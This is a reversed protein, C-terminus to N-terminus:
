AAPAAGSKSPKGEQDFLEIKAKEKVKAILKILAEQRLKEQALPLLAEQSADKREEVKVVHFGMPSPVPEKTFDGAEVNKVAKALAEPLQVELMTGILGGKKQSAEDTSHTKALDEFSKSRNTLAKVVQTATQKDKVLIHRLTVEKQPPYDKAAKKLNDETIENKFLKAVYTQILLSQRFKKLAKVFAPDKEVGQTQAEEALLNLEVLRDRITDFIKSQDADKSFNVGKMEELVEPVTIVIEGQPTKVKAALPDASFSPNGFALAAGLILTLRFMKKM